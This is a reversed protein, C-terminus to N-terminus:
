VTRKQLKLMHINIIQQIDGHVKQVFMPPLSASFFPVNTTQSSNTREDRFTMERLASSWSDIRCSCTANGSNVEDM